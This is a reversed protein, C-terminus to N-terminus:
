CEYGLLEHVFIMGFDRCNWVLTMYGYLFGYRPKIERRRGRRRRGKGRRGTLGQKSVLFYSM